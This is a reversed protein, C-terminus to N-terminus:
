STASSMVPWTALRRSIFFLGSRRARFRATTGYDAAWGTADGLILSKHDIKLVDARILSGDILLIQPGSEVDRHRGWYALGEAAVVRVKGSTQFSLNWEGDIGALRAALPPEDLLFARSLPPEAAIGPRMIAAIFALWFWAAHRLNV